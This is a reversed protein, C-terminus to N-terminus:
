GIREYIEWTVLGRGDTLKRALTGPLTAAKEASIVVLTLEALATIEIVLELKCRCVFHGAAFGSPTRDCLRTQCRPCRVQEARM